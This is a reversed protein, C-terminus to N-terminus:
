HATAPDPPPVPPQEKYRRGTRLIMLPRSECAFRIVYFNTIIVETYLLYLFLNTPYNIFKARGANILVNFETKM